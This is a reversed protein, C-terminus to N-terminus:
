ISEFGELVYLINPLAMGNGHLKYEQLDSHKIDSCWWDPMGNLRGCEIPTLRRVM